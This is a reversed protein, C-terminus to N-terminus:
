KENKGFGQVIYSEWNDGLIEKFTRQIEDRAGIALLRDRPSNDGAQGINMPSLELGLGKSKASRIINSVEEPTDFKFVLSSM